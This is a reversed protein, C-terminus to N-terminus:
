PNDYEGIICDHWYLYDAWNMTQSNIFVLREREEERARFEEWEEEDMYEIDPAPEEGREMMLRRIDEELLERKQIEYWEEWTVGFAAGGSTHGAIYFFHGDSDPDVWEENAQKEKRREREKRAAVKRRVRSAM